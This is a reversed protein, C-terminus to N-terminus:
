TLPRMQCRRCVYMSSNQCLLPQYGRREPRARDVIQLPVTISTPLLSERPLLRVHPM